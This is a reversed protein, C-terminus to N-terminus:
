VLYLVLVLLLSSFLQFVDCPMAGSIRVPVICWSYADGIQALFVRWECTGETLETFWAVLFAIFNYTNCLGVQM